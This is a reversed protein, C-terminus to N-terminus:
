RALNPMVRIVRTGRPPTRSGQPAASPASGAGARPDVVQPLPQIPEAPPTALTEAMAAQAQEADRRAREALRALESEDEDSQAAAKTSSSVSAAAPLVPGALAHMTISVGIILVFAGVAGLAIRPNRTIITGADQMAAALQEGLTMPATVHAMPTGVPTAAPRAMPQPMTRASGTSRPRAREAERQAAADGAALTCDYAARRSSDRLVTYAENIRSAQREAEERMAGTFRDPHWAQVHLKWATRVQSADADRAIGLVDYHTRSAAM